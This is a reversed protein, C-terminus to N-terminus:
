RVRDLGPIFIEGGLLQSLGIIGVITLYVGFLPLIFMRFNYKGIELAAMNIANQLQFVDFDMCKSCDPSPPFRLLDPNISSSLSCDKVRPKIPLYVNELLNWMTAEDMSGLNDKVDKWIEDPMRSDEYKIAYTISCNNVKACYADDQYNCGIEFNNNPNCLGYKAPELNIASGVADVLSNLASAYTPSKTALYVMESIELDNGNMAKQWIKLAEIYSSDWINSFTYKYAYGGFDPDNDFDITNVQTKAKDIMRTRFDNLITATDPSGYGLSPYVANFIPYTSGIESSPISSMKAIEVADDGQGSLVANTNDRVWNDDKDGGRATHQNIYTWIQGTPYLKSDVYCEQNSISNFMSGCMILIDSEWITPTSGEILEKLIQDSNERVLEAGAEGVNGTKSDLINLKDELSGSAYDNIEDKNFDSWVIENFYGRCEQPCYVNYDEPGPILPVIEFCNSDRLYEYLKKEAGDVLRVEVNLLSLDYTKQFCAPLEEWTKECASDAFYCLPHNYPYPIKRCVDPCYEMDINFQSAKKKTIADISAPAIKKVAYECSYLTVPADIDPDYGTLEELNGSLFQAVDYSNQPGGPVDNSPDEDINRKLAESLLRSVNNSTIGQSIDSGDGTYAAIKIKCIEPCQEQSYSVTLEPPMSYLLALIGPLLLYFGIGIALLTAGFRRTIPLPRFIAGLAIGLPGIFYFLFKLFAVVGNGLSLSNIAENYISEETIYNQFGSSYQFSPHLLEPLKIAVGWVQNSAAYKASSSKVSLKVFEALKDQNEQTKEIVYDTICTIRNDTCSFDSASIQSLMFNVIQDLSQIIILLGLLIVLSYVFERMEINALSIIQPSNLLKGFFQLFLSVIFSIMVGIIGLVFWSPLGSVTQFLENLYPISSFTGSLESEITNYENAGFVM